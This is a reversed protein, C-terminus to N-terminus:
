KLTGGRSDILSDRPSSLGTRRPTGSGIEFSKPSIEIKAGCSGRRRKRRTVDISLIIDDGGTGRRVTSVSILSIESSLLECSANAIVGEVVRPSPWSV